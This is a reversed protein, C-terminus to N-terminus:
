EIYGKHQKMLKNFASEFERQLHQKAVDPSKVFVEENIQLNINITLFIPSKGAMPDGLEKEFSGVDEGTIQEAIKGLDPKNNM